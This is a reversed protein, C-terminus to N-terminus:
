LHHMHIEVDNVSTTSSNTCEHDSDEKEEEEKKCLDWLDKNNIIFRNILAVILGAGIPEFLTPM